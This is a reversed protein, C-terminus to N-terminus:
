KVEVPLEIKTALQEGNRILRAILTGDIRPQDLTWSVASVSVTEWKGLGVLIDGKNMKAKAALGDAKVDIVPLGGQYRKAFQGLQQSEVPPGFKLGLIEWIPDNPSRAAEKGDLTPPPAVLPSNVGIPPPDKKAHPGYALGEGAAKLYILRHNLRELMLMAQELRHEAEKVAAITVQAQKHLESATKRAADAAKVESEAAVIQLELDKWVAAYQLQLAQYQKAASDRNSRRLELENASVVKKNALAQTNNFELLAKKFEGEAKALRAPLDLDADKEVNPPIPSNAIPAEETSIGAESPVPAPKAAPTKPAVNLVATLIEDGQYVYAKLTPEPPRHNLIWLVDKVSRTEWPGLGVLIYGLRIGAASAPGDDKVEKVAIGYRGDHPSLFVTEKEGFKLGLENWCRSEASAYDELSTETQPVQALQNPNAADKKPTEADPKQLKLRLVALIEGRKKAEELPDLQPDLRTSVLTEIAANALVQLQTHPLYAVKTVFNGSEIQDVDEDTIHFWVHHKDLFKRVSDNTSYIDLDASIRAKWENSKLSLAYTLFEGPGHSFEYGHGEGLIVSRSPIFVSLSSPGQFHVSTSPPSAAASQARRSDGSRASDTPEASSNWRTEEGDILEQARRQVIKDRQAKRQGIQQELKSLRAQLEQIQLQELQFKLDLAAALTQRLRERPQLKEKDSPEAHCVLCKAPNPDRHAQWLHPHHKGFEDFQDRLQEALTAAEQERAALQEALQRAEPTTLKSSSKRPAIDSFSTPPSTIDSQPRESNPVPKGDPSLWQGTKPSLAYTKDGIKVTVINQSHIPIVQGVSEPPITMRGWKGAQSSYGLLQNDVVTTAFHASGLAETLRPSHDEPWGIRLRDWSGTIKSFADLGDNSEIMIFEDSVLRDQFHFVNPTQTQLEEPSMDARHIRDLLEKREEKAVQGFFYFTKGDASVHLLDSAPSTTARQTIEFIRDEEKWTLQEGKSEATWRLIFDCSDNAKARSIKPFGDGDIETSRNWLGSIDPVGPKPTSENAAQGSTAPADPSTWQGTSSSFAYYKDGVQASALDLGSTPQVKGIFEAPIMMRGWRGTESSYGLLQDDIVVVAFPKGVTGHIIRPSGDKPLPVDINDWRGLTKSFAAFGDKTEKLVLTQGETKGYPGQYSLVTPGPLRQNRHEELTAAITEPDTLQELFETWNSLSALQHLLLRKLDSQPQWLSKVEPFAADVVEFLKQRPLWTLYHIPKFSGGGFTQFQRSSGVPARSIYTFNTSNDRSWVGSIDPMQDDATLKESTEGSTAAPKQESEAGREEPGVRVWREHFEGFKQGALLTGPQGIIKKAKDDWVIDVQFENNKDNPQLTYTATGQEKGGLPFPIIGRYQRKTEDWKLPMPRTIFKDAGEQFQLLVRYSESDTLADIRHLMSYTHSEAPLKYSLWQGAITKSPQSSKVPLTRVWRQHFEGFKQGAPEATGGGISKKAADDWIIDVLLSDPRDTPKITYIANGKGGIPFPISGRFERKKQDWPIPMRQTVFEDAGEQFQLLVEFEQKNNQVIRHLVSYTHTERPLSFTVWQGSINPPSSSDVSVAPQDPPGGIGFPKNDEPQIATPPALVEAAVLDGATTLEYKTLGIQVSFQDGRHFISVNEIDKAPITMRAWKDAQSSFVLLQDDFHVSAFNRSNITHSIRSRKDKPAAVEERHWKGSKQNYAALGVSTELVLVKDSEKGAAPKDAPRVTQGDIVGRILEQPTTEGDVLMLGRFTRGDRTPKLLLTGPGRDAELTAEFQRREASWKLPFPRKQGDIVLRFDIAEAEEAPRFQAVTKEGNYLWIGSVDPLKAPPQTVEATESVQASVEALRPVPAPQVVRTWVQNLLEDIGAETMGRRKFEIRTTDDITIAVRMSQGDAALQFTYKQTTRDNTFDSEFTRSRGLWRMPVSLQNPEIEPAPAAEKEDIRSPVMPRWDYPSTKVAPTRVIQIAPALQLTDPRWSRAKWLGSLDPLAEFEVIKAPGDNASSQSTSVPTEQVVAPQDDAPLAALFALPVTIALFTLSLFRSLNM